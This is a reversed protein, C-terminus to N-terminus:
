SSNIANPGSLWSFVPDKWSLSWSKQCQLVVLWPSQQFLPLSCVRRQRYIKFGKNEFLETKPSFFFGCSVSILSIIELTGSGWSKGRAWCQSAIKLSGASSMQHDQPTPSDDHQKLWKLVDARKLKQLTIPYLWFKCYKSISRDASYDRSFKIGTTYNWTPSEKSNEFWGSLVWHIELQSSLSSNEAM